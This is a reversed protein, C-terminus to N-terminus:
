PTYEVVDFGNIFFVETPTAVAVSQESLPVNWPARPSVPPAPVQTVQGTAAAIEYLSGSYMSSGSALFVDTGNSSISSAAVVFSPDTVATVSGTAIAIEYVPAPKGGQAGTSVWVNTGDSAVGVAVLGSSSLLPELYQQIFAGSSANFELVGGDYNAVWLHTGNDAVSTPYALLSDNVQSITGSTEDIQVLSGSGSAGGNENLVWVNTGDATIGVPSDFYPSTMETVTGTAESVQAVYGTGSPGGTNFAVWLDGGASVLGAPAINGDGAFTALTTTVGTTLDTTSITVQTPTSNSVLNLAWLTNGSVAIEYPVVPLGMSTESPVAPTTTATPDASYPGQGAANIAAVEFSYTTGSTLGTITCTDTEPSSVTYTCTSGVGDTAIYSLVPSGGDSLPPAWTLVASTTSAVVTVSTPVSPVNPVLVANSPTSPGSTGVSNTATVTFTYTVGATLGTVACTTAAPSGTSICSGGNDGTVTYTTENTGTSSGFGDNAPATWSVSISTSDPIYSAVPVLPATPATPLPPVTTTTSTTTTVVPVTTTPPPPLTTTPATSTTTAPPLTPTTTVVTPTATTTTTPPPPLTTTTVMPPTTSTPITSTTAAPKNIQTGRFVGVTRSSLFKTDGPYTVVFTHTASSFHATNIWCRIPTPSVVAVQAQCLQTGNTLDFSVRGTPRSSTKPIHLYAVLIDSNPLGVQGATLSTSLKSPTTSPITMSVSTTSGVFDQDGSYSITLVYSGGTFTGVPFRCVAGFAYPHSTGIPNVVLKSTCITAGSPASFTVEGTPDVPTVGIHLVAVLVNSQPANMQFGTLSTKYKAPTPPQTTSTSPGSSPATTTTTSTPVTGGGTMAFLLLVLIIALILAILLNRRNFIGSREPQNVQNPGQHQSM